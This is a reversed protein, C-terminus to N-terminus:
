FLPHQDADMPLLGATDAADLSAGALVAERLAIARGQPGRTDRMPNSPIDRRLWWDELNTSVSGLAWHEPTHCSPEDCLHRVVQDAHLADLGHLLAYGYRHSIVVLGRTRNIQGIRLRGHGDSSIAGTWVRCGRRTAVMSVRQAYREQLVPDALAAQWQARTVVSM